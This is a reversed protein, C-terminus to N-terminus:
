LGPAGREEQLYALNYAPQSAKSLAFQHHTTKHMAQEHARCLGTIQVEGLFLVYQTWSRNVKHLQMLRQYDSSCCQLLANKVLLKKTDHTKLLKM